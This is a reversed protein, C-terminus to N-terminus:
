QKQAPQRHVTNCGGSGTFDDTEMAERRAASKPPEAVKFGQIITGPKPYPHINLPQKESQNNM